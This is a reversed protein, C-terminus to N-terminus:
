ASAVRRAAWADRLWAVGRGALAAMAGAALLMAGLHVGVAALAAWASGSATLERAPSGSVCLPVLAPVLRMGASQVCAMALSWLALGADAASPRLSCPLQGSVHVAAVFFALGGALWPLLGREGLAGVTALLAVLSIAGAHGAAIAALARWATAREGGRLRWAAMAVWGTAPHLGHLAGVGALALWPGAGTM